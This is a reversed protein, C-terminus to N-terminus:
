DNKVEYNKGEKGCSGGYKREVSCFTYPSVTGNIYDVDKWRDPHTCLQPTPFGFIRSNVWELPDKYDKYYKCNICSKIETM